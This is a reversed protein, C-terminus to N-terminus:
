AGGGAGGVGGGATTPQPADQELVCPASPAQRRQPCLQPGCMPWLTLPHSLAPRPLLVYPNSAETSTFPPTQGRVGHATRLGWKQVGENGRAEGRCHGVPPPRPEHRTCAAAAAGRAAGMAPPQSALQVCRWVVSPLQRRQPLGHPGWLPWLTLAAVRSACPPHSSRGKGMEMMSRLAWASEAAARPARPGDAAAHVARCPVRAVAVAQAAALGPPRVAAVVHTHTASPMTCPVQSM